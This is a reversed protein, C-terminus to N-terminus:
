LGGPDGLDRHLEDYRERWAPFREFLQELTLVEWGFSRAMAEDEPSTTERPATAIAETEPDIVFRPREFFVLTLSETEAM